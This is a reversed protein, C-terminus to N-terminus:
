THASERKDVAVRGGPRLRGDLGARLRRVVSLFAIKPARGAHGPGPRAALRATAALREQSAEHQRQAMRDQAARLALVPDNPLM